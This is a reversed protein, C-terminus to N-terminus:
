GELLGSTDHRYYEDDYGATQEEKKEDENM